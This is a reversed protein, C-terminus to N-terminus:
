HGGTVPGGALTYLTGCYPCAGEGHEALNIYVRPHTSWLPMRPNPCHIAGGKLDHPTMEVPTSRRPAPTIVIDDLNTTSSPQKM